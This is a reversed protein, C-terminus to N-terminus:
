TRDQLRCAQLRQLRQRGCLEGFAHHVLRVFLVIFLQRESRRPAVRAAQVDVDVVERQAPVLVFRAHRGGHVLQRARGGRRDMLRPGRGVVGGEGRRRLLLGDDSECWELGGVGVVQRCRLGRGEEGCKFSLSHIWSNM